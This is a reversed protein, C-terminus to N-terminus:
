AAEEQEPATGQEALGQLLSARLVMGKLRGEADVVPAPMSSESLPAFLERVPTDLGVAETGPEIIGQIGREGRQVAKLAADDRVVGRLRFNSEVVFLLSLDEDEMKRLVTRPGDSVFAVTRARRMVASATLVKTKDVEAVFREVYATAPSSLIDEATGIQEIRADKMLVIRNGLFLAEDLDHTIFVITKQMRSQLAILEQQMDRRILPDLASFAEDMLLVDPEVALARALGVRQQMGGSLQGPHADAWGDLGVQSLATQAKEAREAPSVGQIELGYEVNQQITRHPFLAFHQFVMGFKRRRVELLDRHGLGVIDQGDILIEGSTPENLRNLCRILSSKGSGSLGMVVLIEGEYVDFSADAVGVTQGTRELISQKTEGQRLLELAEEPADGFIKTLGRVAM